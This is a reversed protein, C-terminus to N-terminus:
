TEAASAAQLYGHYFMIFGQEHYEHQETHKDSNCFPNLSPKSGFKPNLHLWHLFHCKLSGFQFPTNLQSGLIWVAKTYNERVKSMQLSRLSHKTELIPFFNLTLSHKESIPFFNLSLQYNPFFTLLKHSYFLKPHLTIHHFTPLKPFTQHSSFLAKNYSFYDSAFTLGHKSLALTGFFFRARPWLRCKPVLRTPVQFKALQCM